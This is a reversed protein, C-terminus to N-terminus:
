SNPTTTAQNAYPGGFLVMELSDAKQTKLMAEDELAEFQERLTNMEETITSRRRKTTSKKASEEAFKDREKRLKLAEASLSDASRRYLKMTDLLLSDADIWVTDTPLMPVKGLFHNRRFLTDTEPDFPYVRVLSDMRMQAVQSTPQYIVRISGFAIHPENDRRKYDALTLEYMQSGEKIVITAKYEKQVGGSTLNTRMLYLRGEEDNLLEHNTQLRLNKDLTDITYNFRVLLEGSSPVPIRLKLRATDAMRNVRITDKFFLEQQCEAKLLSDISEKKRVRAQYEKSERDLTNLASQLIDGFRASKRTQFNALSNFFQDQTYGYKKLIPSYIDLSDTNIQNASAYANVLFMEHVIKELDEDPINQQKSCGYIAVVGM